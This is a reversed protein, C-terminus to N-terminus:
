ATRSGGGTTTNAQDVALADEDRLQFVLKDAAGQLEDMDVFIRDTAEDDDGGTLLFREDILLELAPLIYAQLSLCKDMFLLGLLDKPDPVSAERFLTEVFASPVVVRGAPDHGPAPPQWPLARRTARYFQHTIPYSLLNNPSRAGGRDEDWEIQDDSMADEGREQGRAAARIQRGTGEASSTPARRKGAVLNQDQLCLARSSFARTAHM